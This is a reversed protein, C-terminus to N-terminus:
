AADQQPASPDILGQLKLMERSIQDAVGVGGAKVAQKAMADVLLSKFQKEGQGGSFEGGGVGEFMSQMMISLVQAEFAKGTDAIKTRIRAEEESPQVAAAAAATRQAKDAAVQLLDAFSDGKVKAKDAEGSLRDAADVVLSQAQSILSSLQM